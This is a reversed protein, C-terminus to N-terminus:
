SKFIHNLLEPDKKNFAENIKELDDKVKRDTNAEAIKAQLNKILELIAPLNKVLEYLATVIATM